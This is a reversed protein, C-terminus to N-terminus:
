AARRARLECSPHHAGPGCDCYRRTLCDFALLVSAILALVGAVILLAQLAATVAMMAM